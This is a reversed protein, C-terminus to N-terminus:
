VVDIAICGGGGGGGGGIGGDHNYFHKGEQCNATLLLTNSITRQCPLLLLILLLLTNFLPFCPPKDPPRTTSFNFQKSQIGEKMSLIAFFTKKAVQRRLKNGEETM